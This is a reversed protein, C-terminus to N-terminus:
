TWRIRVKKYYGGSKNGSTNQIEHGDLEQSRTTGAGKIERSIKYKMDM